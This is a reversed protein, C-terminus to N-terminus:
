HLNTILSFALGFISSSMRSHSSFWSDLEGTRNIVDDGTTITSPCKEMVLAVVFSEGFPQLNLHQSRPPLDDAIAPHGIVNMSQYFCRLGIEGVTHLMPEATVGIPVGFAVSPRAM